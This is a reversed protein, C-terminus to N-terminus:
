PLLFFAERGERKGQGGGETGGETGSSKSQHPSKHYCALRTFSPLHLFLSCINQSSYTDSTFRLTRHASLKRSRLDYGWACSFVHRPVLDIFLLVVVCSMTAFFTPVHPIHSCVTPQILYTTSVSHQFVSSFSVFLILLVHFLWLFPHIGGRGGEAGGKRGEGLM